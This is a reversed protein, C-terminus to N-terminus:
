LCIHLIEVFCLNFLFLSQNASPLIIALIDGILQAFTFIKVLCNIVVIFKYFLM